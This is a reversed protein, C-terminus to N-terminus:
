LLIRIKAPQPIAAAMEAEKLVGEVLKEVMIDQAQDATEEAAPRLFPQAPVHNGNEDIHGLEVLHSYRWPEIKNGQEDTGTIKNRAGVRAGARKGKVKVVKGLSKKLWGKDVSVKGKASKVVPNSAANLAKRLHKRALKDGLKKLEKELEKDGTMQMMASHKAQRM